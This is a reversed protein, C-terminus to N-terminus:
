EEKRELSDGPVELADEICPDGAVGPDHQDPQTAARQLKAVPVFPGRDIPRAAVKRDRSM